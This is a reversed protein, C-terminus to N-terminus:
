KSKKKVLATATAWNAAQMAGRVKAWSGKCKGDVAKKFAETKGKFYANFLVDEGIVEVLKRVVGEQNPYSHTPKYKAAKVAKITLYETAGEDTENGAFGSWSPDANSHLMEHPVTDVSQMDSNIYSVGEFAFGELNGFKPVIYKDWSYKTKGYIKDYRAKFDAQAAVVVKGGSIKKYTGFAAELVEVAKDKEIHAPKKPPKKGKNKNRQVATAVARNGALRQLATIEGVSASAQSPRAFNPTRSQEAQGKRTPAERAVTSAQELARSWQRGVQEVIGFRGQGKLCM